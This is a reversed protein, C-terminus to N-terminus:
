LLVRKKSLLRYTLSSNQTSVCAKERGSVNLSTRPSVSVGAQQNGHHKGEPLASPTCLKGNVMM